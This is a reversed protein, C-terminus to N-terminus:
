GVINPVCKFTGDAQWLVCNQLFKLNKKRSFMLFSNKGADEDDYLLFPKDKYTKTYVDPIVLDELGNYIPFAEIKNHKIRQITRTLASFSPLNASAEDTISHLNKSIVQRASDNCKEDRALEKIKNLRVYNM